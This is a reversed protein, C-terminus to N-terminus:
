KYINIPLSFYEDARNDASAFVHIHWSIDDVFNELQLMENLDSSAHAAQQLLMAIKETKSKLEICDQKFM